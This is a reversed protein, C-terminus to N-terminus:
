NTNSHKKKFFNQENQKAKWGLMEMRDNCNWDERGFESIQDQTNVNAM